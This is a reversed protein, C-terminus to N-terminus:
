MICWILWIMKWYKGFAYFRLCGLSCSLAKVLLKALGVPLLGCLKAEVLLKTLGVFTMVGNKGKLNERTDARSFLCGSGLRGSGALALWM